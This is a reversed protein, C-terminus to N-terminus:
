EVIQWINDEDVVEWKDVKGGFKQKPLNTGTTDKIYGRKLLYKTLEPEQKLLQIDQNYMDEYKKDGPNYSAIGKNKIWQAALDFMDKNGFGPTKGLTKKYEDILKPHTTLYDDAAKPDLVNSSWGHQDKNTMIGPVGRDALFDHLNKPRFSDEVNWGSILFKKDYNDDQYGHAGGLTSERAALGLMDYPSDLGSRNASTSLSDIYSLPVKAGRLRGQTLIISEKSKPIDNIRDFDTSFKDWADDSYAGLKSLNPYEKYYDALRLDEDDQTAKQINQNLNKASNQQKILFQPTNISSIRDDLTRTDGLTEDFPKQISTNDRQAIYPQMISPNSVQQLTRKLKMSGGLPMEKTNGGNQYTKFEDNDGWYGQGQRSFKSAYISEDSLAGQEDQNPLKWKDPFHVGNKGSNSLGKFGEEKWYGRLDYASDDGFDGLSAKYQQYASEQGPTLQTLSPVGVMSVNRNAAEKQFDFEGGDAFKKGRGDNIANTINSYKLYNTKNNDEIAKRRLYDITNLDNQNYNNPNQGMSYFRNYLATDQQTPKYTPSLPDFNYLSEFNYNPTIGGNPYKNIKPKIKLKSKM